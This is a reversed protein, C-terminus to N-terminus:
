ATSSNNSILQTLTSKSQAPHSFFLIDICTMAILFRKNFGRTHHIDPNPIFLHDANIDILHSVIKFLMTVKQKNRGRSLTPGLYCRLMGPTLLMMLGLVTTALEGDTLYSILVKITFSLFAIQNYLTWVVDSLDSVSLFLRVWNNWVSNCMSSTSIVVYIYGTLYLLEFYSLVLVIIVIESLLLLVEIRRLALERRFLSCWLFVKIQGSIVGLSLSAAL